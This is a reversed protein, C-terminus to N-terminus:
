PVYDNELVPQTRIMSASPMKTGGIWFTDFAVGKESQKEMKRLKKNRVIRFIVVMVAGLLVLGACGLGMGLVWIKVGKKEKHPVVVSFYGQGLTNCVYPKSMNQLKFSGDASFKVCKPTVNKEELAVHSFHFAIPDKTICFRVKSKGMISSNSSDYAMFGVVPAVLRYGPVKYYYSSWNGFNQYLITLRTVYPISYIRTPINLFSFNAGRAWFQGRRLRIVSVEIGSFNAPLSINYVIGTRPKVLAKNAYDHIFANLSKLESHNSGQAFSSLSLIFVVWIIYWRRYFDLLLVRFAKEQREHQIRSNCDHIAMSLDFGNFSRYIVYGKWWLNMFTM